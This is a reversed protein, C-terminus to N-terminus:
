VGPNLSKFRKYDLFVMPIGFAIVMLAMYGTVGFYQWKAAIFPLAVISVIASVAAYVNQGRVYSVANGIYAFGQFLCLGALYLSYLLSESLHVAGGGNKLMRSGVLGGLLGVTLLSVVAVGTCIRFINKKMKRVWEFDRKHFAETLGPWIQALVMQQAQQLVSGLRSLAAYVAAGKASGSSALVMIPFQYLIAGGVQPVVYPLGSRLVHIGERISFPGVISLKESFKSRLVLYSVFQALVIPLMTVALYAPFALKFRSAVVTGVLMLVSGSSTGVSAIWGLQLGLCIRPVVSSMLILVFMTLMTLAVQQTLMVKMTGEPLVDQLLPTFLILLFASVFIMGVIGGLVLGASRVLRPISKFDNEGYLKSISNQLGVGVGLDLFAMFATVGTLASWIGFAEVGLYAAAVPIMALSCLSGLGRSVLTAGSSVIIRRVRDGTPLKFFRSLM